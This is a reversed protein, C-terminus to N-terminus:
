WLHTRSQSVKQSILFFFNSAQSDFMVAWVAIVILRHAFFSFFVSVPELSVSQHVWVLKGVSEWEWSTVYQRKTLVGYQQKVHLTALVNELLNLKSIFMKIKTVDAIM